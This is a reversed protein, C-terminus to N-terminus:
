YGYVEMNLGSSPNTIERRGTTPLNEEQPVWRKGKGSHDKLDGAV